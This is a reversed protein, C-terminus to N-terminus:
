PKVKAVKQLRLVKFHPQSFYPKGDESSDREDEDEEGVNITKEDKIQCEDSM